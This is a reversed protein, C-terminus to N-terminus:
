IFLIHLITLIVTYLDELLYGLDSYFHVFVAMTDIWSDSCIKCSSEHPTLVYSCTKCLVGPKMRHGNYGSKTDDFSYGHRMYLVDM